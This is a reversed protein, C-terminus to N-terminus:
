CSSIRKVISARLPVQATGDSKSGGTLSTMLVRQFSALISQFSVSGMNYSKAIKGGNSPLSLYLFVLQMATYSNTQVHLLEPKNHIAFSRIEASKRPVPKKGSERTHRRDFDKQTTLAHNYFGLLFKLKMKYVRECMLFLSFPMCKQIM